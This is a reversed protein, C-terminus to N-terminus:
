ATAELARLQKLLAEQEPSIQKPTVVRIRVFLDGRGGNMKTLGREKLRVRQGTQSGAPLTVQGSTRLTPVSIDGGLIATLYPVDVQAELDDGTRAFVPHPKVKIVAYLDGRKGRTGAAGGGPVRLKKGEHIGAPIKVETTRRELSVGRGSCQPCLSFGGGIMSVQGTGRCKSCPEEVQYTLTRKGGQDVENLTLEVVHEVDKPPTEMRYGSMDVGAGGFISEFFDGFGVGGGQGPGFDYDQASSRGSSGPQVDQWGSGFRDYQRRKEPDNLVSYAESVEKFKAEAEASGPNVDPHYRRALKRYAAKIEKEDAKRSIGLVKYYDAM